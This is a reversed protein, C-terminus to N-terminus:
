SLYFATPSLHLTGDPEVYGSVNITGSIFRPEGNFTPSTNPPPTFQLVGSVSLGQVPQLKNDLNNEPKTDKELNNPNQEISDQESAKNETEETKVSEETNEALKSADRVSSNKSFDPNTDEGVARGIHYDECSIKNEMLDKADQPVDTGSAYPSSLLSKWGELPLYGSKAGSRCDEAYTRALTDVKENGANGAHGKVWVFKVSGERKTLEADIARILDANKVPENKSNKWGNKKWGHIWTTSCNIAYQSDTEITLPESGPHARLAELVACLEGIQNTGNTAGGADANGTHHHESTSGAELSHDAWAWGMSGNPNGLASGDTSVVIM